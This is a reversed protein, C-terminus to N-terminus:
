GEKLTLGDCLLNTCAHVELARSASTLTDAFDELVCGASSEEFRLALLTDTDNYLISTAPPLLRGLRPVHNGHTPESLWRKRPHARSIPRTNIFPTFM